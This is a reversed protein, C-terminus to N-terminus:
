TRPCLETFKHLFLDIEPLIVEDYARSVDPPVDQRQISRQCLVLCHRKTRCPNMYVLPHSRPDTPKKKIRWLIDGAEERQSPYWPSLAGGPHLFSGEPHRVHAKRRTYVTDVFLSLPLFFHRVWTARPDDRELLLDYLVLPAAEDGTLIAACLSRFTSTM